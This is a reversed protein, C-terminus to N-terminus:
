PPMRWYDDHLIEVSLQADYGQAACADLIEGFPLVGLAPPLRDKDTM